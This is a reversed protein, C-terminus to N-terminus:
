NEQFDVQVWQSGSQHPECNENLPSIDFFQRPSLEEGTDKNIIAVYYTGPAWLNMEYNRDEYAGYLSLRSDLQDYYWREAVVKVTVGGKVNGAKDRVVGFVGQLGCNPHSWPGGSIRYAWAPTPTATPPLTATSTPRRTPTPPRRTDTPTLTPTDTPTVTPTDTPLPTHTTTPTPTDTPIPTDTPTPTWTPPLFPTLAAAAKPITAGAAPPPLPNLAVRPNIFIALYCLFVLLTLVLVLVTAIQMLDEGWEELM